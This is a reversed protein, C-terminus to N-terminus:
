KGAPPRTFAGKEIMEHIKDRIPELFVDFVRNTVGTLIEETARIREKEIEVQAGSEKEWKEKEEALLSERKKEEEELMKTVEEKTVNISEVSFGQAQLLKKAKEQAGMVMEVADDITTGKGESKKAALEKVQEALPVVVQENFKAFMANLEDQRDRRALELEAESARGGGGIRDRLAEAATEAIVNMVKTSIPDSGTLKEKVIEAGAEELGKSIGKEVGSKQPGPAVAGIAAQSAASVVKASELAIVKDTFSGGESKPLNEVIESFWKLKKVAEGEKKEDAM